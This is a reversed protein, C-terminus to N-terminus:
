IKAHVRERCSLLTRSALAEGGTVIAVKSEGFSIRRAAQDFLKAPTDGGHRLMVKHTPTVGLKEAIHGPLDPYSWTWTNVVSVSDISSQLTRAASPSLDTDQIALLTAKLMLEMPEIADEIKTSKNKIDGVGIVIPAARGGM